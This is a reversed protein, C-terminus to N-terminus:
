KKRLDWADIWEIEVPVVDFDAVLRRHMDTLHGAGYFIGLKRKGADLQRRLVQLARKNRETVLTSGDPGSLGVMLSEMSSEFQKAMAIKLQRPRDKSFLASFFDFDASEGKASQQSQQAISQGLMRFYLQVFSENRDEMSQFFEEPSFDAHVFNPRTYDIRELQHEIELMSKMGNQLAGLPHTSSTGRGQAVKTGEPAVLEYLLADYQRFRRNLQRYYRRDGVHVAGVLDIVVGANDTKAAARDNAIPNGAAPNDTAPRPVYRVIATQLALPKGQKDKLLRVWKTGLLTEGDATAIEQQRVSGAPQKQATAPPAAALATALLSTVALMGAALAVLPQYIYSTPKTM